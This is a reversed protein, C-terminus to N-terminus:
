IMMDSAIEDALYYYGSKIRISNNFIELPKEWKKLIPHLTKNHGSNQLFDIQIGHNTRLGLLIKENYRQNENLIEFGSLPKENKSLSKLYEDLSSNNWWRKEGDYGHASPGFALYPELNWYHLNHECEKGLKSFHAIEYQTFKNAMLFQSGQIYMDLEREDSTPSIEGSQIQSFFPTNKDIILPYTAIHDPKLATVIKLNNIWTIVSQGPINYLLDISINDFGINRTNTYITFCEDPSHTRSLTHLITPNLSQFGISLRNVGANKFSLLKDETTEGPNVELTVEICESTNFQNNINNLIDNIEKPSLLAPSGGGFYITDFLWNKDHREATINIERQLMEVFIGIDFNRKELSYYDCYTCKNECFPIHIYIGAFKM